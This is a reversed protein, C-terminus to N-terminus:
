GGEGIEDCPAPIEIRVMLFYDRSLQMSFKGRGQRERKRENASWLSLFIVSMCHITTVEKTKQKRMDIRKSGTVRGEKRKITRLCPLVLAEGGAVTM